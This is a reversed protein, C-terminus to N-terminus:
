VWQCTFDFSCMNCRANAGGHSMVASTTQQMMPKFSCEKDGRMCGLGVANGKTLGAFGFGVLWELLRMNNCLVCSWVWSEATRACRWGVRTHGQKVRLKHLMLLKRNHEDVLHKMTKQVDATRVGTCVGGERHSVGFDLSGEPDDLHELTPHTGKGREHLPLLPRCDFFV